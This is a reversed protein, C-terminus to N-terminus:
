KFVSKRYFQLEEISEEIDELARHVNKKRPFKLQPFWAQALIKISSVDVIRYHLHNAIKPMDKLLFSRDVHISNGALVGARHEPIHMTIFDLVMQEAQEMTHESNLVKATLGSKGHHETCWDDM